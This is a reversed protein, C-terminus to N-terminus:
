KGIHEVEKRPIVQYAGKNYAPAVTFNKSEEQKWSTDDVPEYKSKGTYSPYKKNFEEMQLQAYTKEAKYPKFEHTTKKKRMSNTKRKRGTPDYRLSGTYFSTMGMIIKAEM